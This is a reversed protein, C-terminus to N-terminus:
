KMPYIFDNKKLPCFPGNDLATWSNLNCQVQLLCCSSCCDYVSNLVVPPALGVKLGNYLALYDVQCTSIGPWMLHAKYLSPGSKLPFVGWM